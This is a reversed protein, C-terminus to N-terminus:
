LSCGVGFTCADWTLAPPSPLQFEFTPRRAFSWAPVGATSVARSWMGRAAETNAPAAPPLLLQYPLTPQSTGPGLAGQELGPSQEVGNDGGAFGGGGTLGWGLNYVRLQRWSSQNWSLSSGRGWEACSKAVGVEAVLTSPPSDAERPALSSSSCTDWPSPSWPCPPWSSM